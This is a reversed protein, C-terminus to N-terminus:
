RAPKEIKVLRAVVADIKAQIPALHQMRAVEMEAVLVSLDAAAQEDYEYLRTGITTTYGAESGDNYKVREVFSGYGRRSYGVLTHTRPTMMVSTTRAALSMAEIPPDFKVGYDRPM